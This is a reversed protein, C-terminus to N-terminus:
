VPKAEGLWNRGNAKSSMSRPSESAEERQAAKTELFFPTLRLFSCFLFPFVSLSRSLSPSPPPPPIRLEGVFAQITLSSGMNDIDVRSIIVKCAFTLLTIHAPYVM